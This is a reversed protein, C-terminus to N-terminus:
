WGTAFLKQAAKLGCRQYRHYSAAARLRITDNSEHLIWGDIAGKLTYAEAAILGTTWLLPHAGTSKIAPEFYMRSKCALIIVERSNPNRGKPFEELTFDMLGNHGVYAILDSAGGCQILCNGIRTEISNCGASSELFDITARKIESGKYADAVLLVAKSRHKFICRELVCSNLNKAAYLLEWDRARKFFTKVGGPAGWYLNNETKEGNGLREPVPIIGQYRNDCLAVYVHITKYISRGSLPSLTTVLTIFIIIIRM